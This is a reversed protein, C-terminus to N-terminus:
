GSLKAAIRSMVVQYPPPGPLRGRKIQHFNEHLAAACSCAAVKSFASNIVNVRLHTLLQDAHTASNFCRSFHLRGRSFRFGIASVSSSLENKL